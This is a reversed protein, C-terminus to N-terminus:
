VALAGFTDTRLMRKVLKGLVVFFIRENATENKSENAAETDAIVMPEGFNVM